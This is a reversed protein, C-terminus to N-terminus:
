LPKKGIRGISFSPYFAELIFGETTDSVFSTFGDIPPPFCAYIYGRNRGAFRKVFSRKGEKSLEDYFQRSRGNDLVVVEHIWGDIEVGFALGRVAKVDEELDYAFDKGHHRVEIMGYDSIECLHGSNGNLRGNSKEQVAMALLGKQSQEIGHIKGDRLQRYSRLAQIAAKNERLFRVMKTKQQSILERTKLHEATM